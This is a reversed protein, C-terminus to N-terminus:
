VSLVETYIIGSVYKTSISKLENGAMYIKGKLSSTHVTLKSLKTWVKCM